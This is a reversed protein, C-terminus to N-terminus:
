GTGHIEDEVWAEIAAYPWIVTDCSTCIELDADEVADYYLNIDHVDDRKEEGEPLCLDCVPYGQYYYGSVKQYIKDTYPDRDTPTTDEEDLEDAYRDWFSKNYDKQTKKYDRYTSNSYWTGDEWTGKSENIIYIKGKSTLFIFRSWGSYANVMDRYDSNEYWHKPLMRLIRDRFELTDSKGDPLEPIDITGNHVFALDEDVFFPHCNELCVEGRTARRFHIVMDYNEERLMLYKFYLLDLRNLSKWTRIKEGDSWMISHGDGHRERLRKFTDFEIEEADTFHAIGICM